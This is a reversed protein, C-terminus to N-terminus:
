QISVKKSIKGSDTEINLIYNGAINKPVRYELHSKNSDTNINFLAQGLINFMEVSTIAKLSTNDIVISQKENSYYVDINNEPKLTIASLTQAKSFAIEFRGLHSGAELFTEYKASQLDHYLNLEKDYLYIDLDKTINETEDITISNLGANDTHIGLPIITEKTIEKVGQILFKQNNIMWYMDDIQTDIYKSDYGWDIGTTANKDATILLQRRIKNVSNFGIRLKMRSDITETKDKRHLTNNKYQNTNKTFSVRQKNNFNITGNAESTIYFGQGVPIYRTPIDTSSGETFNKPINSGQSAAPVSGSLSFTAYGGQYDDAIHSGGGWHKWFYLAGNTTGLGSAKDKNDLLFQVADIASPYPNGVLYDNGANVALSITGNNPKGKLTYSQTADINGTGPGKMTFGEGPLIEGISRVHQWSAYDDSLKNSFKWIWYDAIGLPIESGDYGSTIFKVDSFVDMVTYKGNNMNRDSNNVPSSWYNYTYKDATGIIDKELVGYSAADLSSYETQILQADGKLKLKGNLKLYLTNKLASNGKVTLTKGEEILLGVTSINDTLAVNGLVRVIAHKPTKNHINWVDNHVWSDADQWNGNITSSTEYPLPATYDQFSNADMNHLLGNRNNNSSDLTYGTNKAKMQYYLLLNDWSLDGIHKPIVSGKVKNNDNEIKQNIQTQIESINLAKNYVRVENISGKFYNNQNYIDRGIEFNYNSNWEPTNNTASNIISKDNFSWINEGNLYLDLTGSNGNYVTAIHHWINKTISASNINPSIIDLGTNTKLFVKLKKNADTYLKFNPQGMIEGGNSKNDIKIWSMMTLESEGGLFAETSVYDNEGDFDLNQPTCFNFNGIGTAHPSELECDDCDEWLISISTILNDDSFNVGVISNEGPTLNSVANVIGTANNAVYTPKNSNRFQPYIIEGNTNKGTITYKDGNGAHVNVHHIDFSMAYIPKSFTITCTIGEKTFGNTLLDLGKYLYSSKTGVKPTQGAWFGFSNTEGTFSITINVDSNDVNIYTNSLSGTPWGYENFAEPFTSWNLAYNNGCEPIIHLQAFTKSSYLFLSITMLLNVAIHKM